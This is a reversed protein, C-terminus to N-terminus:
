FHKLIGNIGKIEFLGVVNSFQIYSSYSKIKSINSINDFCGLKLFLESSIYYVAFPPLWVFWVECEDSPPNVGSSTAHKWENLM